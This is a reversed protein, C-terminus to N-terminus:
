PPMKEILAGEEGTGRAKTLNVYVLCYLTYAYKAEAHIICQMCVQHKRLGSLIVWEKTVSIISLQLSHAIHPHQSSFGPGRCSAAFHEESGDGWGWFIKNKIINIQTWSNYICMLAPEWRLWFLASSGRSSSNVSLLSGGSMTSPVLSRDEVLAALARLRQAM